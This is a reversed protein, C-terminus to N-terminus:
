ATNLKSSKFLFICLNLIITFNECNVLSVFKYMSPRNYYYSKIYKKRLDIYKKCTLVLHYEDDYENCVDCIRNAIPVPPKVWRGTESKLRHNCTRLRTM